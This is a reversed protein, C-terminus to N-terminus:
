QKKRPGAAGKEKQRGREFRRATRRDRGTTGATDRTRTFEASGTEREHSVATNPTWRYARLLTHMRM